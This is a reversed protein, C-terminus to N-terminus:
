VPSHHDQSAEEGRIAPLVLDYKGNGEGFVSDVMEGLLRIGKTSFTNSSYFWTTPPSVVVSNTGMGLGKHHISSHFYICLHVSDYVYICM